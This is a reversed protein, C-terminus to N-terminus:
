CVAQLRYELSKCRGAGARHSPRRDKANAKVNREVNSAEGHYKLNGVVAILFLQVAGAMTIEIGANDSELM